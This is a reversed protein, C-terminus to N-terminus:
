KSFQFNFKLLEFNIKSKACRSALNFPEPVACRECVGGSFEDAAAEGRM